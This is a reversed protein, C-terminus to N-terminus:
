IQSHSPESTHEESRGPAIVIVDPHMGREIRRCSACKGCADWELEAYAPDQEESGTVPKSRPDLCNVASAIAMAVRRKGVGAPGALLLAPPLTNRAIARSLLSVLRRHGVVSGFM